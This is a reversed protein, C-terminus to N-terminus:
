TDANAAEDTEFGSLPVIFSVSLVVSCVACVSLLLIACSATNNRVNLSSVTSQTTCRLFLFKTLVDVLEALLQTRDTLVIELFVISYQCKVHAAM